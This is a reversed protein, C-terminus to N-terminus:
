FEFDSPNHETNLKNLWEIQRVDNSDIKSKDEYFMEGITKNKKMKQNMKM